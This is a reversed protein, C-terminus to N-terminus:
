GGGRGCEACELVLLMPPMDFMEDGGGVGDVAELARRFVAAGEKTGLVLDFIEKLFGSPVSAVISARFLLTPGLEAFLTIDGGAVVVDNAEGLLLLRDTMM